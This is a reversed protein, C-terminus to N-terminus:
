LRAWAAGLLRDSIDQLEPSRARPPNVHGPSLRPRIPRTASTPPSWGTGLKLRLTAWGVRCFQAASACGARCKVPFGRAM